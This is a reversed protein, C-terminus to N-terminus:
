FCIDWNSQICCSKLVLLFCPRRLGQPGAGWFWNQTAWFVMQFLLWISSMQLMQLSRRPLTCGLVFFMPFVLRTRSECVILTANSKYKTLVCIMLYVLPFCPTENPKPVFVKWFCFFVLIKIHQLHHHLFMWGLFFCRDRYSYCIYMDINTWITSHQPRPSFAGFRVLYQAQACIHFMLLQRHPTQCFCFFFM